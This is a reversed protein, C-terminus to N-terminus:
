KVPISPKIYVRLNKKFNIKSKIERLELPMKNWDSIARPIFTKLATTTKFLRKDVLTLRDATRTEREVLSIHQFINAPKKDTIIRHLLALTHYIVLQRVSLWDCQHFLPKTSTMWPLKTICRAATNQQVQLLNLLYNSCSGYVQIIYTLSSM